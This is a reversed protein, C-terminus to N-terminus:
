YMPQLQRFIFVNIANGALRVSKCSTRGCRQASAELSERFCDSIAGPFVFGHKWATFGESASDKQAM